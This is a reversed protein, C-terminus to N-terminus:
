WPCRSASPHARRVQFYFQHSSPPALGAEPPRRPIALVLGGFRQLIRRIDLRLDGTQRLAIGVKRQLFDDQAL